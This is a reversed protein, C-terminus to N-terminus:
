YYIFMAPPQVSNKSYDAGHIGPAHVMLRRNHVYSLNVPEWCYSWVRPCEASRCESRQCVPCRYHDIANRKGASIRRMIQLM